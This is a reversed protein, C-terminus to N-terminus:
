ELLKLLDPLFSPLSLSCEMKMFLSTPFKITNDDKNKNLYSSHVPTNKRRWILLKWLMRVSHHWTRKEVMSLLRGHIMSSQEGSGNRYMELMIPIPPTLFILLIFLSPVEQRLLPMTEWDYDFSNASTESFGASSRCSHSIRPSFCWSSGTCRFVPFDCLRLKRVCRCWFCWWLQAGNPTDQLVGVHTPNTPDFYWHNWLADGVYSAVYAYDGSIDVSLAGDLVAGNEGHVLSGAFLLQRILFMLSRLPMETIQPLTRMGMVFLLPPLVMSATGGKEM